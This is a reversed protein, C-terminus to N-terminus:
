AISQNGSRPFSMQAVTTAGVSVGTRLREGSKPHSIGYTIARRMATTLCQATQPQDFTAYKTKAAAISPEVTVSNDVQTGISGRFKPSEVEAPSKRKRLAASVHLCKELEGVIDPQAAPAPARPEWTWGTPFDSLRLLARSGLARDKAIQQPSETAVPITRPPVSAASTSIAHVTLTTSTGGCGVTLLASMAATAVGGGIRLM